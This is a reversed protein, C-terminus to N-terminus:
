AGQGVPGWTLRLKIHFSHIAGRHMRDWLWLVGWVCGQVMDGREPSENSQVQAWGAETKLRWGMASVMRMFVHRTDM